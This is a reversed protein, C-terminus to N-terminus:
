GAASAYLNLALSLSAVFGTGAIVGVVAFVTVGRVLKDPAMFRMLVYGFLPHAGNKNFATLELM